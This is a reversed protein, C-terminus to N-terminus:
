AASLSGLNGFPPPEAAMMSVWGECSPILLYGMKTGQKGRM